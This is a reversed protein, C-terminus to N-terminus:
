RRVLPRRLGLASWMWGSEYAFRGEAKAREAHNDLQRLLDGLLPRLTKSQAAERPTRGRFAPVPQDMWARYHRDQAEQLVGAEVEPPIEAQPQRPTDAARKLAQAVTEYSTARHSTADGALSEIWHRGRDGRARSTAEFVARPGEIRFTGLSRRMDRADELWVFSGDDQVNVDDRSALAARLAPEDRVDFVIRTFMMEDGEATVMRPLPRQVVLDLWAHHFVMGHRRFFVAIDEGPPHRTFRRHHSKFIKLLASKESVPYLYIGGEFMPVGAENEVVRAGILDWRVMQESGLREHVFVRAKTWLEILHIGKDREVAEIQYLRMTAARVREIFQREDPGITWGRQALFIDAVTRGADIDLDFVFWTNYKITADDSVVLERAERADMGDLRDAWFLVRAIAHNTAFQDSYAFRILAKMAAARGSTKPQPAVEHKLLCCKKYKQGSGCPCPDNRGPADPMAISM